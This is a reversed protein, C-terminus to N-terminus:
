KHHDIIIIILFVGDLDCGIKPLVEEFISKFKAVILIKFDGRYANM